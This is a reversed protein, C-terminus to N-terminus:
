PSLYFTDQSILFSSNKSLKSLNNRESITRQFSSLTTAICSLAGDLFLHFFTAHIANFYRML